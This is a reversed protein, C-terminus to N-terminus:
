KKRTECRFFFGREEKERKEERNVRRLSVERSMVECHSGGLVGFEVLLGMAVVRLSAAHLGELLEARSGAHGHARLEKLLKVQRGLVDDLTLQSVGKSVRSGHLDQTRPFCCHRNTLRYSVNYTHFLARTPKRRAKM